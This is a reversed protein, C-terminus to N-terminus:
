ILLTGGDVHLDQGNVGTNTLLFETADVVEAVTVLRGIPTRAISPHDTVDAWRPSDGVVGPHVANVRHPALQVALTAVMGSVAQTPVTAVTSEPTPRDKAVGGFLVVSAHPSFRPHLVRALELSGVVKSNVARLAADTDLEAVTTGSRETATVVLNDVRETGAFVEAISSPATLDLAIGHAPGPLEAAATAAREASRSTVVVHDGRETRRRAIALGIGSSGGVVVSTASM